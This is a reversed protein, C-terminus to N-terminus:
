RIQELGADNPLRERGEDDDENAIRQDAPPPLYRAKGCMWLFRPRPRLRNGFRALFALQVVVARAGQPPM